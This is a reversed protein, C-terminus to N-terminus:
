DEDLEEFEVAMGCMPCFQPIEEEDIVLVQTEVGCGPCETWYETELVNEQQCLDEYKTTYLRHQSKDHSKKHM